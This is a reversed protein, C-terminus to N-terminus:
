MASLSVSALRMALSSSSTRRSRVSSSSSLDRSRHRAPTERRDERHRHSGADAPDGAPHTLAEIGHNLRYITGRSKKGFSSLSAIFGAAELDELRRSLTGGKGTLKNRTEIEQRFVGEQRGAVLKILEEYKEAEDFLSGFIEGFEDFLPGNRDFLMRSINRDVSQSKRFQKLYYPVGGVAMYARLTQEQNAPYRVYRLFDCTEKLSFPKLNIRRTARNHLGGRSKVIKRM